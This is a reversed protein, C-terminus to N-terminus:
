TRLTTGDLLAHTQADLPQGPSHLGEPVIPTVSLLEAHNVSRHQLALRKNRCDDCETTATCRQLLACGVLTFSPKPTPKVQTEFLSLM